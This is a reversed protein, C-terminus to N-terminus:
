GFHKSDWEYIGLSFNWCFYIRKDIFERLMNFESFLDHFDM